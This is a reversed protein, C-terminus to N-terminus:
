TVNKRKLYKLHGHMGDGNNRIYIYVICGGTNIIEMIHVNIDKMRRKINETSGIYCRKTDDTEHKLKYFTIMTADMKLLTYQNIILNNFIEKKKKNCRDKQNSCNKQYYM